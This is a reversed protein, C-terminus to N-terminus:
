LGFASMRETYLAFFDGSPYPADQNELVKIWEKVDVSITKDSLFAEYTNRLALSNREQQMQKKKRNTAGEDHSKIIQYLVYRGEKELLPSIEGDEMSFLLAETEPDLDGREINLGVAAEESNNKAHGLFSEQEVTIKQYIERAKEGDTFVIRGVELVRADSTSVEEVEKDIIDKKVKSALAYEEFLDFVEEKTIDKLVGEENTLERYYLDSIVRLASIEEERLYVERQPAMINLAKMERLFEVVEELFVEKYYVSKGDKEFRLEWISDTYTESIRKKQSLMILTMQLGSYDVAINIIASETEPTLVEEKKCSTFFFSCLALFILLFRDRQTKIKNIM